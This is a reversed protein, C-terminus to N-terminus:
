AASFTSAGMPTTGPPLALASAITSDRIRPVLSSCACFIVSHLLKEEYRGPVEGQRQMGQQAVARNVLFRSTTPWLTRILGYGKCCCVMGQLVLFHKAAGSVSTEWFRMIFSPIRRQQGRGLYTGVKRLTCPPYTM